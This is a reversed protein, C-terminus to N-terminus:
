KSGCHGELPVDLSHRIVDRFAEQLASVCNDCLHNEAQMLTTFNLHPGAKHHIGRGTGNTIFTHCLNCQYDRRTTM